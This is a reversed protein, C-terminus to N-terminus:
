KGLTKGNGIALRVHQLNTIRKILDVVERLTKAEKLVGIRGLGCNKLIPKFM